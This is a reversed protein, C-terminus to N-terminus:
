LYECFSFFFFFYQSELEIQNEPPVRGVDFPTLSTSLIHNLGGTHEGGNLLGRYTSLRTKSNFM